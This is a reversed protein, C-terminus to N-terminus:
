PDAGPSSVRLRTTLLQFMNKNNNLSKNRGFTEHTEKNIKIYKIIFFLVVNLANHLCSSGTKCLTDKINFLPFLFALHLIEDEKASAAMETKHGLQPSHGSM